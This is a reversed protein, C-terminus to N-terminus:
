NRLNLVTGRGLAYVRGSGSYDVGQDIRGGKLSHVSRLPNRYPLTHDTSASAIPATFGIVGGAVALVTLLRTFKMPSGGAPSVHWGTRALLVFGTAGGAQKFSALRAWPRRGTLSASEHIDGLTCVGWAVPLSVFERSM